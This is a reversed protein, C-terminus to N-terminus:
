AILPCWLVFDRIGKGDMATHLALRRFFAELDGGDHDYRWVMPWLEEPVVDGLAAGTVPIEGADSIAVLSVNALELPMILRM